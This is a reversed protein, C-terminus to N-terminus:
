LQQLPHKPENGSNYQQQTATTTITFATIRGQHNLATHQATCYREPLCLPM